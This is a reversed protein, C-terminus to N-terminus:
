NVESIFEVIEKEECFLGLQELSRKIEEIDHGNRHWRRAMHGAYCLDCMPVDHIVRWIGTVEAGCTACHYKKGIVGMHRKTSRM